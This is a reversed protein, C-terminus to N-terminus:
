PARTSTEDPTEETPAARAEQRKNESVCDGGRRFPSPLHHEAHHLCREAVLGPSVGKGTADTVNRGDRNRKEEM